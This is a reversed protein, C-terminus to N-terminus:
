VKKSQGRFSIAKITGNPESKDMPKPEESDQLNSLVDYTDPEVEGVYM